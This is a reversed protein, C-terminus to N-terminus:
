SSAFFKKYAEDALTQATIRLSNIEDFNLKLVEVIHADLISDGAMSQITQLAEESSM